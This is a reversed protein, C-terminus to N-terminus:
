KEYIYKIETKPLYTVFVDEIAAVQPTTSIIETTMRISYSFSNNGSIAPGEVARAGNGLSSLPVDPYYPGVDAYFNAEQNRDSLDILAAGAYVVGGSESGVFYVNNRSPVTANFHFAGFDIAGPIIFHKAFRGEDDIARVDDWAAQCANSHLQIRGSSGATFAYMRSHMNEAPTFNNAYVYYHNRWAGVNFRTVMKYVKNRQYRHTDNFALAGSSAYFFPGVHAYWENAAGWYATVWVGGSLVYVNGIPHLYMEVRSANPEFLQVRGVDQRDRGAPDNLAPNTPHNHWFGPFNTDTGISARPGDYNFVRFYFGNDPDWRRFNRDVTPNSGVGSGRTGLIFKSFDQTTVINLPAGSGYAWIENDFDDFEFANDGVGILGVDNYIHLSEPLPNIGDWTLALFSDSFDAVQYDYNYHTGVDSIEINFLLENGWWARSQNTARDEEFNDWFGLKVSNPITRYTFPTIEDPDAGSYGSWTQDDAENTPCSDLWTVRDYNTNDVRPVGFEFTTDFNGEGYATDAHDGDNNTDEDRFDNKLTHQAIEFIKVFSSLTKRTVVTGNPRVVHALVEIEYTGGSHFCFETTFTGSKIRNPNVNNKITNRASQAIGLGDIFTNFSQWSNFPTTAVRLLIANVVTTAQAPVIPSLVAVLVERPATNVNIPSRAANSGSVATAFSATNYTTTAKSDSWSDITIFDRIQAYLAETMSPANMIQEEYTFRAGPLTNRYAIVSAAIPATMGPLQALMNSLNPNTDNINIQSAGDLVKLYIHGVLNSGLDINEKLAGLGSFSTQVINAQSLLTGAGATYFWDELRTDCFNDRAGGPGYKLHAIAFHMGGRALLRARVDNLFLM